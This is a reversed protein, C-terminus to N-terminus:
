ELRINRFNKRWLLHQRQALNRRRLRLRPCQPTAFSLRPASKKLIEQVKEAIKVAVTETLLEKAASDAKELNHIGLKAMIDKINIFGDVKGSFKETSLKACLETCGDVTITPYLKAFNREEEGGALFLPLCITVTQDPCLQKLVLLTAQRSIEGEPLEEGSCSIIGVKVKKQLNL